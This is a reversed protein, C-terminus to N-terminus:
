IKIKFYVIVAILSSCAASLFPVSPHIHTFVAVLPSLTMALSQVSQSMGLIKGQIDKGAAASIVNTCIPWAIGATCVGLGLIVLLGILHKPFIVLVCFLTFFMLCIEFVKLPQFKKIFLKNLIGSGLAWCIGMFSAVYGIEINTFQFFEVVQVPTFQLLINWSFLFLFYTMYIVKINKTKLVKQINHIGELFDFELHEHPHRTERFFFIIFFLNVITLGAAIWIPFAPNFYSNIAADSFWGGLFVGIIFSSGAIAALYGFNKVRSYENHSLDAIATLCISLNGSFVGSILRSIFLLSILKLHISIATLVLGVISFLITYFFAKKRGKRDAYDGILTAGFFQAAPFAALFFGLITTRTASSVEPSFILNRSDLFFPAFIPFVISWCLNDVFFTFFISALALKEKQILKYEM